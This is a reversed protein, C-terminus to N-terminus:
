PDNRRQDEKSDSVSVTYCLLGRGALSIRGFICIEAEFTAGRAAPSVDWARPMLSGVLVPDKEM